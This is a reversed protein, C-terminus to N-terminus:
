STKSPPALGFLMFLRPIITLGLIVTLGYRLIRLILAVSSGESSINAFLARTAFFFSVLLILGLLVRITRQIYRGSVDSGSLKERLIIGLGCGLWLGVVATADENQSLILYILFSSGITLSYKATDSWSLWWSPLYRLAQTFMWLAIFGFILGGIVDHLFHVGAYVRSWMQAVVLLTVAFHIWRNRLYSALYGWVAVALLVHNSPFGYGDQDFLPSILEPAIHFPRPASFQTKLMTGLAYSTTLALILRIGLKRDLGWYIIPLVVLFFLTEGSFHLTHALLDGLPGRTGALTEVFDLGWGTEWSAFM